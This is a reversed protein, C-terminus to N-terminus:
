ETKFISKNKYGYRFFEELVCKLMEYGNCIDEETIKETHCTSNGVWKADEFVSKLEPTKGLFGKIRGELAGPPIEKDTFCSEIIRELCVRIKNACSNLDIWYLQFSELLAEKINQPIKDNFEILHPSREIYEIKHIDDYTETINDERDGSYDVVIESKGAFVIKEQCDPNKCELVGYLGFLREENDRNYEVSHLYDYFVSNRHKENDKDSDDSREDNKKIELVGYKCIPCQLKIKGPIKYERKPLIVSNKSM